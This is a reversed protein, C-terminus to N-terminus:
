HGESWKHDSDKGIDEVSILDATERHPAMGTDAIATVRAVVFTIDDTQKDFGAFDDLLNIIREAVLASNISKNTRMCDSLLESLRDLGFQGGQKNVAETIGDTYMLFCDGDELTLSIHGLCSGFDGEILVPVGLPMGAPNIQNVQGTAAHYYLM